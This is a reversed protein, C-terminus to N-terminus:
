AASNNDPSADARAAEGRWEERGADAVYDPQLNGPECPLAFPPFGQNVLLGYLYQRTWPVSLHWGDDGPTLKRAIDRMTAQAANRGIALIFDVIEGRVEVKIGRNELFARIRERHVDTGFNSITEMRAQWANDAFALQRTRATDEPQPAPEAQLELLQRVPQEERIPGLGLAVYGAELGFQGGHLIWTIRRDLRPLGSMDLYQACLAEDWYIFQVIDGTQFFRDDRRIEFPKRWDMLAGFCAPNVKLHHFTAPLPETASYHTM